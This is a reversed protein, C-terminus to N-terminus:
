KFIYHYAWVSVKITWIIFEKGIIWVLLGTLAKRAWPSLLNNIVGRGFEFGDKLYYVITDIATDFKTFDIYETIDLALILGIIVIIGAILLAWKAVDSM